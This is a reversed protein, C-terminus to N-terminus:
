LTLSNVELDPTRAEWPAIQFQLFDIFALYGRSSRLFKQKSTGMCAVLAEYPKCRLFPCFVATSQIDALVGALM